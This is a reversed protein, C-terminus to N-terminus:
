KTDGDVEFVVLGVGEDLLVGSFSVDRPREEAGVEERGAM